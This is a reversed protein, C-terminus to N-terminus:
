VAASGHKASVGASEGGARLRYRGQFPIDRRRQHQPQGGFLLAIEEAQEGEGVLDLREHAGLAAVGMEAGAAIREVRELRLDHRRVIVLDRGEDAQAQAASPKTRLM